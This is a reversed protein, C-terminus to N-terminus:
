TLQRITTLIYPWLYDGNSFHKLSDELSLPGSVGLWDTLKEESWENEIAATGSTRFMEANTAHEYM